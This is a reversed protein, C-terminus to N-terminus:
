RKGVSQRVEEWGGSVKRYQVGDVIRTQEAPEAQPGAAMRANDMKQARMEAKNALVQETDGPMPFFDKAYAMRESPPIAAGSADRLYAEVWNAMAAQAEVAKSNKMWNPAWESNDIVQGVSTPDYEDKDAIATNFQDEAKKGLNYLGMQKAQTVSLEADKKKKDALREDAVQKREARLSRREERAEARDASRAALDEKQMRYQLQKEGELTGMQWREVFGPTWMEPLKESNPLGEAIASQRIQAWNEPTASWALNKAKATVAAMQNLDQDQFLKDFDFSQKALGAEALGAIAGKRNGANKKMIEKTMRSDNLQDEDSANQLSLRKLAAGKQAVDLPGEMEIGKAQLIIRPDLPM